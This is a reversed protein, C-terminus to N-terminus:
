QHTKNCSKDASWSYSFCCSVVSGCVSLILAISTFSLAMRLPSCVSWTREFFACVRLKVTSNSIQKAVNQSCMVIDRSLQFCWNRKSAVCAFRRKNVSITKARMDVVSMAADCLIGCSHFVLLRQLQINALSTLLWKRTGIVVRSVSVVHM